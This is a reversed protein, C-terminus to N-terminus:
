KKKEKKGQKSILKNLEQSFEQVDSFSQYVSAFRIYGVLDIEKLHDMVIKGVQSSTVENKRMKQLDREIAGTLKKFDEDTIPRKELARKLGKVMKDRQYSERNGNRKIISLDLIELDEYTSFRFSCKQCERRRRISFGDNASRSDVVKSDHHHCVPCRM